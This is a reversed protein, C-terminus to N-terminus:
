MLPDTFGPLTSGEANVFTIMFEGNGLAELQLQGANSPIGLQGDPIHLVFPEGSVEEGNIAAASIEGVGMQTFDGAGGMSTAISYIGGGEVDGLESEFGTMIGQDLIQSEILANSTDLSEDKVLDLSMHDTSTSPDDVTMPFPNISLTSAALEAGTQHDLEDKDTTLM